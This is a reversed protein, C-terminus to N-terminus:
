TISRPSERYARPDDQKATRFLARRRGMGLFYIAELISSKGSGNDGTILNVAAVPLLTEQELNRFHSIQLKHISPM